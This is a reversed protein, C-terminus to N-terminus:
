VFIDAVAKSPPSLSFNIRSKDIFVDALTIPSSGQNYILFHINGDLSSNYHGYIIIQPVVQVACGINACSQSTRSYYVGAGLYIGAGVAATLLVLLFLAKSRHILSCLPTSGLSLTATCTIREDRKLLLSASYPIASDRQHGSSDQYSLFTRGNPNMVSENRWSAVIDNANRAAKKTERGNVKGIAPSLKPPLAATKQPTKPTPQAVERLLTFSM